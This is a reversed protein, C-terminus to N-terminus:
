NPKIKGDDLELVAGAISILRHEHTAVLATVNDSQVQTRLLRMIQKATESDLQGTPEDALLVQPRGALARAIAVRQQQGGSLEGPRQKAHEGLGVIDLMLRVREERERPAVGAIRLPVGVNEAASLIPILGFSQFIFAVSTRRLRMREHESMSTVENDGVRVRGDDPMDLGGVINLLTTKGSGSRGRLAVLQGAQVTFSVGRLARTATRGSGFTRTVGEVNVM